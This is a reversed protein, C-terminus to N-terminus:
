GNGFIVFITAMAINKLISVQLDIGFMVFNSKFEIKLM